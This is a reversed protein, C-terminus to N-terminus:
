RRGWRIELFDVVGEPGFHAVEGGSSRAEIRCDRPIEVIEADVHQLGVAEGFGGGGDEDIGWAVVHDAGDALRHLAHFAFIMSGCGCSSPGGTPSTATRPATTIFPYQFRGSAM